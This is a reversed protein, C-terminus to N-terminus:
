FSSVGVVPSGGDVGRVTPVAEWAALALWWGRGGEELRERAALLPAALRWGGAHAVLWARGGGVGRAATLLPAVGKM